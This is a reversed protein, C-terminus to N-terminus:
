RFRVRFRCAQVGESQHLGNPGHKCCGLIALGADFSILIMLIRTNELNKLFWSTVEVRLQAQNGEKPGVAPSKGPNLVPTERSPGHRAVAPPRQGKTPPQVCRRPNRQLPADLRLVECM